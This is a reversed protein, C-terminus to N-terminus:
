TELQRQQNGIVLLLLSIAGLLAVLLAVVLMTGALGSAYSSTIVEIAKSPAGHSHTLVGSSLAARVKAELAPIQEPRAGLQLLRDRLSAFGFGNVLAGSAAFGLAFGLQGTTTRFATVSGFYRQPAEQVFLASQPVSLFALGTGVLLLPLIFSAYPTDARVGALLVLGLVLVLIGGAMLQTTRRGPAMLRGAVVGGAAFCILLPLQALAVQSTSYRQVTQWFNSTQLQVVAQAFNWAIGSVIAAAFCGRGYLGVPFIPEQRRREIWVHVGFVAVGGLTPLLFQPATFGSVAHSVGSLFLVMALAISVLGPWDARLAANAPMEPLLLPVLPLCLLAILPVLGLALRWSSDALVGGLLSGGIFGAIILLNWMGLAKGLQDPRSVCRVSAFTLALVAGVGIGVLARGLLFLAASPAVLAIGDGAISLLLSGMLVKRRGLRDGLFGMLLVTAAQALTSISAALALTAGQMHLAAGAKVLATNAVTPDILQLSALVGLFPVALASASKDSM